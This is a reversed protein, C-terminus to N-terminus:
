VSPVFHLTLQNIIIPYDMLIVLGGDESYFWKAPCEQWKGTWANYGNCIMNGDELLTGWAFEDGNSSAISFEISGCNGTVKLEFNYNVCTWNGILNVPSQARAASAMAIFALVPVLGTKLNM